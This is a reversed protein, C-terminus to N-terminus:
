KAKAKKKPPKLPLRRGYQKIDTCEHSLASDEPAEAWLGCHQCTYRILDSM